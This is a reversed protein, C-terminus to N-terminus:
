KSPTLQHQFDINLEPFNLHNTNVLTLKKKRPLIPKPTPTESTQQM